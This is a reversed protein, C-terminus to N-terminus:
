PLPHQTLDLEFIYGEENVLTLTQANKFTIAELQMGHSVPLCTKFRFEGEMVQYLYVRGYSLLALTSTELHIAAGSVPGEAEIMSEGIFTLGGAQKHFSYIKHQANLSFKSILFLTDGLWFFAEFDLVKEKGKVKLPVNFTETEGTLLHYAHMQLPKNPFNNVGIEGVWLVGDEDVQLEEWDFCSIGPFGFSRVVEYQDNLAYLLSDNSDNIAYFQGKVFTLGSTESLSHNIKGIFRQRAWVSCPQSFRAPWREEEKWLLLFFLFFCGFFGVQIGNM